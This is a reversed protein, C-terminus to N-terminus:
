NVYKLILEWIDPTEFGLKWAATGALNNEKMLELKAELSKADELWIKYTYGDEGTWEAYNLKVTDDWVAEAGVASVRNAAEQMGLAESKVNMDYNAADTGQQASLEEETKPYEAWLRTYFPMANIVKEAPVDKLTEEIGNKVYNYSAVPGAEYSGSYHEDYGMIIVYDAVIGQEKRHYHANYGMPVYNDVSLVLDNLRCKVSLERIFQIYHEGTEESIQEFDVNIGDIGSKLAESILQNELNERASTHSLLEYSDVNQSFNDVLAWVEINSQHAYNVYESSAISTLNGLNDAVSFWTPSITTLGKTSAITELVSSNATQSSVQHWALNITYDKSINTFEEEEFERSIEETVEKKLASKRTYGIVGDKTRVKKWDGLEEIVTVKDEKAVETLIPSKVGARLRVQADRKILATKVEGFESVIMVRDPQEYFSYELNTYQQVFDLAIYATSGKTKLIVYDKTNKEKSVTYEKSGVDVRVMGRPLTYLLINENPDWYFRDNLYDRIVEYSVYIVDDEKMAYAGLVDNDITIGVQSDSEIGFYKNLDYTEKTPGYKWWLLAGGALAAIVILFVFMNLFLNMKRKKRTNRRPKVNRGDIDARAAAAKKRRIEQGERSYEAQSRGSSSARVKVGEDPRKKGAQTGATRVMRRASEATRTKDTGVTRRTGTRAGAAKKKEDTKRREDM